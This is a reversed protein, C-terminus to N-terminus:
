VRANPNLYEGALDGVFTFSLVIFFIVLAPFIPYWPASQIYNQGDYVIRGLDIAPPQAGLGLYGLVSFIIIVNGIDATAYAVLSTTVNPIVHSIVIRTRTMGSARAALVYQNQKISLTEGRAIRTYVPWWVVALALIANTLGPGLAAAIAVALILGPFALFVDTVRMIIEDVMGSFYGAISGTLIGIVFAFLIVSLSAWADIPMGYLSELFISKGLSDTGFPYTLSPPKFEINLHILRPNYGLLKPDLLMIASYSLYLCVIAFSVM